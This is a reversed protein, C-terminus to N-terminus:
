RLGGVLLQLLSRLEGALGAAAGPPTKAFHGLWKQALAEDFPMGLRHASRQSAEGLQRALRGAGKSWAYRGHWLLARPASSPFIRACRRMTSLTRSLPRALQRREAANGAEWLTLYVETVASLGEGVIENTLRTSEVLVMTARARLLAAETEGQHLLCLAILGGVLVKGIVDQSKQVYGEAESFLRWAIEVDGRRLANLGQYLPYPRRFQDSQSRRALEYLEPGAAEFVLEDQQRFAMIVRFALLSMLSYEDGVQRSRAIAADLQSKALGWNAANMHRASAVFGFDLEARSNSIGALSRGGRELLSLSARPLPVLGALYSFVALFFSQLGKDGLSNALENGRLGTAISKNPQGVWIYAECAWRTAYAVDNWVRREEETLLAVVPVRRLWRALMAGGEAAMSFFDAAPMSVGVQALLQEYAAIGPGARGLAMNAQVLYNHARAAQARPLLARCEPALAQRLLAAAQETAGQSLAHVGAEVLYFAAQAPSGGRQYHEALAAAHPASGPYTNEMERALALHLRQRESPELALLLSERIKDHAFRWSQDKVELVAADAAMYLWPELQAEFRRLILLDLQRGAVAALRLLPHVEEPLRALRRQVIAQIGGTLVTKPLLHSGVLSLQGAEEALARMVEIVFFVNGETESELCAV